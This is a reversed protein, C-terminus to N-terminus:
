RRRRTASLRQQLSRLDDALERCSQFRRGPEKELLQMIFFELEEPISADWTTPPAPVENLHKVLVAMANDHDFPLVGAFMRYAIVGISYIDSLHTASKFDNIQEPAMYAPTGATFGEVTLNGKAAETRKAIGFDMLKVVNANTVFLNEPKLDRHVVGREHVCNVGECVQILYGLDRLLERSADLKDALDMGDLIEMTIFRVERHAGIDYLRVVNPHSIQRALALEQRFRSVMSPDTGGRAFLKIAIREGLELDTAEYVAAMGGSGLKKELRYRDAVVYAPPLLHVNEISDLRSAPEAVPKDNEPEALRKGSPERRLRRGPIEPLSPFTEEDKARPKKDASRRFSEDERVVREISGNTGRVKADLTAHLERAGVFTPNAAALRAAIDRATETFGQRDFLRAARSFAVSEEQTSPTGELFRGVFQDFDFDVTDLAEALEIALLAASRYQPTDKPIRLVTRLAQDKMGAALYARVASGIVGADAYIRAADEHRGQEELARAVEEVRANQGTARPLAGNPPTASQRPAPSSSHSYPRSQRAHVDSARGPPPTSPARAMLAAARTGDGLAVCARAAEGFRGAREYYAAARSLSRRDLSELEGGSVLADAAAGYQGQEALIDSAELALGAHRLVDAAEEPKGRRLLEAAHKRSAAADMTLELRISGIV